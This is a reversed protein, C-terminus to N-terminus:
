ATMHRLIRYFQCVLRWSRSLLLCSSSALLLFSIMLDVSRRRYCWNSFRPREAAAEVAAHHCLLLLSVRLICTAEDLPQQLM